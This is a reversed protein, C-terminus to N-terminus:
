WESRAGDAAPAAPIPADVPGPAEANYPDQEHVVMNERKGWM